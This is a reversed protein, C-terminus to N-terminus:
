VKALTTLYGNSLMPVIRYVVFDPLNIKHLCCILNRFAGASSDILSRRKKAQKIHRKLTEAYLPFDEKVSNSELKLLEENKVYNLLKSIPMELIDFVSLTGINVRKEKMRSIEYECMTIRSCFSRFESHPKLSEVFINIEAPVKKKVIMAALLELFGSFIDSNIMRHITRNLDVTQNIVSELVGDDDHDYLSWSMELITIGRSHQINVDAGHRLLVEALSSKRSAIMSTLPTHLTGSKYNVHAGREILIELIMENRAYFIPTADSLDLANVDAGYDLLLKVIQPRFHEIRAAYHLPTFGEYDHSNVSAGKELLMETIRVYDAFKERSRPDYGKIDSAIVVACSLVTGFSDTTCNVDTGNNLLWKVIQVKKGIVALHLPTLKGDSKVNVDAGSKILKKIVSTNDKRYGGVIALHLPTWGDCTKKRIDAGRACLFDVLRVNGKLTAVHLITKGEFTANVDAGTKDLIDRLKKIDGSVAAQWFSRTTIQTM